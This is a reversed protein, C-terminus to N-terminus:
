VTNDCECRRVISHQGHLKSSGKASMYIHRSRQASRKGLAGERPGEERRERTAACVLVGIGLSQRVLADLVAFLALVFRAVLRRCVRGCRVTVLFLAWM